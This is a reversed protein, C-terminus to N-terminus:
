RLFLSLPPPGAAPALALRLRADGAM